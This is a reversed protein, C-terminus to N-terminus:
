AKPLRVTVRTGTGPQSELEISGGHAEAIRRAVTLGLGTGDSRTSFLPDFVQEQLDVPIGVGDDSVTIAIADTEATSTVRAEGGPRLAHAANQLLNLFLQELGARDGHVHVGADPLDLTLAAGAETFDLAASEAAARVSECVDIEAAATDGTASRTRKLTGAVTENLRVIERLAREHPERLPSDPDLGAKVRQLDVRIATLPNRIEHALSAAFQGVAALSQQRSLESLTNELSATMANFADAVRGVEDSREVEVRRGLQGEAVAGAADSLRELSRTLRGTLAVALVLGLVTVGVLLLVGDRAAEEFPVTFQALGASVVVTLPPEAMFRRATLWSEGGWQFREAELMLPDFPTPNLSLGTRSGFLGVVTGAAEPPVGGPGILGEARIGFDISGLRDESLGNWIDESMTLVAGETRPIGATNAETERRDVWLQRGATDRIALTVIGRNVRDLAGAMLGALRDNRGSLLAEQLERNEALRLVDARLRVWNSQVRTVTAVLAGNLRNRVLSEGSRAASRSLWLGVLALPVLAVLLVIILIRSRFSLTAKM